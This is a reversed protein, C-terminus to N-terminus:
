RQVTVFELAGFEFEAQGVADAITAHRTDTVARWDEDCYLLYVGPEGDYRAIALGALDRVEAGGATHRTRGTPVASTLDAVRLIKAGDITPPPANM